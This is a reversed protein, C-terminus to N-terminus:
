EEEEKFKEVFASAKSNNGFFRKMIACAVGYYENFEQGEMCKVVTKTGDAWFVITAPNSFVIKTIMPIPMFSVPLNLKTNIERATIKTSSITRYDIMEKEEKNQDNVLMAGTRKMFRREIEKIVKEDDRTCSVIDNYYRGTSIGTYRFQLERNDDVFRTLDILRYFESECKRFPSRIGLIQLYVDRGIPAPFRASNPFLNTPIFSISFRNITRTDCTIPPNENIPMISFDVCKLDSNHNREYLAVGIIFKDM